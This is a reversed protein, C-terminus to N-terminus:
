EEFLPKQAAKFTKTAVGKEPPSQGHLLIRCPRCMARLLSGTLVLDAAPNPCRRTATECECQGQLRTQSYLFHKKGLVKWEKKKSKGRSAM